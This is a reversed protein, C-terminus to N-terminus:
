YREEIGFSELSPPEGPTHEYEFPLGTAPDIPVSELYDPVLPDIAEPWDGHDLRYAAMAVITRTAVLCREIHTTTDLFADFMPIVIDPGIMRMGLADHHERWQEVMRARDAPPADLARHMLDFHANTVAISIDRPAAFMTIANLGITRLRTHLEGRPEEESPEGLMDIRTGVLRGYRSFTTNLVDMSYLRDGELAIRRDALELTRESTELLM